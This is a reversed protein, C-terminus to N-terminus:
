VMGPVSFWRSYRCSRREQRRGDLGLLVHRQVVGGAGAHLPRVARRHSDVNIKDGVEHILSVRIILFFIPNSVRASRTVHSRM